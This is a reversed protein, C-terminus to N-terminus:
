FSGNIQCYIDKSERCVHYDHQLTKIEEWEEGIIHQVSDGVKLQKKEELTM